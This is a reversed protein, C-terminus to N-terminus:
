DIIVARLSNESLSSKMIVITKNKNLDILKDLTTQFTSMLYIKGEYTYNVNDTYIIKTEPQTSFKNGCSSCFKDSDKKRKKGCNTCYVKLDKNDYQKQSEPLIKWISTSCTYHNFSKNVTQFSQDSKGGKEVRGTELSDMTVESRSNGKSKKASRLNPGEFTNSISTTNFNIGATTSSSSFLASGNSITSQVYGGSITGANNYTHIPGGFSGGYTIQNNWVPKKYEDFFDIVVDGNGTIADLVENSTGDVEYTEFKFKRADDLYRELFVRQGPKLVIGGGSIYNGDLKIKTLVTNTTPNFLELEFEDGNKLYVNQGVQKLRKKDKTIYACPTGTKTQYYM